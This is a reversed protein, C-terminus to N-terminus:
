YDSKPKDGGGGCNCSCGCSDDTPNDLIQETSAVGLRDCGQRLYAVSTAWDRVGGSAKVKMKDGVTKIMIEIVHPTASKSQKDDAGFGTSSKVFDAGAEYAIECAKAIQDDELWCTELIVKVIAGTPKAANVVAEIDRRVWDYDGTIMKGVNMVMDLEKVGAECALQTELAKVEPMNSGHPFGVVMSVDVGTGALKEVALPVDSPRVCMSAVKYKACMAANSVIDADTMNPKLTAHDLTAAVQEVTYEQAM